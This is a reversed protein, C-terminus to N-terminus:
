KKLRPDKLANWSNFDIDEYKEKDYLIGVTGFFTHCRINMKRDFPQNMYYPDLHKM